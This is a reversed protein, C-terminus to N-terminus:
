LLVALNKRKKRRGSVSYEDSRSTMKEKKKKREKEKRERM